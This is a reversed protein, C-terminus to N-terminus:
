ITGHLVVNSHLFLGHSAREPTCLGCPRKNEQTYRDDAPPSIQIRLLVHSCEALIERSPTLSLAGIRSNLHVKMVGM